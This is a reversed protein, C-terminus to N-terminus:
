WAKRIRAAAPSMRNGFFNGHAFFRRLELRQGPLPTAWAFLLPASPSSRFSTQFGQSVNCKGRGNLDSATLVLSRRVFRRVAPHLDAIGLSETAPKGTDEPVTFELVALGAFAADVWVASVISVAVM